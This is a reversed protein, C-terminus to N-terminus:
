RCTEAPQAHATSVFCWDEEGEDLRRENGSVEQASSNSSPSSDACASPPTKLPAGEKRQLGKDDDPYPSVLPSGIRGLYSTNGAAEEGSRDAASPTFGAHRDAARRRMLHFLGRLFKGPLISCFLGAVFHLLGGGELRQAGGPVSVAGTQSSCKKHLGTGAAKSPVDKEANNSATPSSGPAEGEQESDSDSGSSISSTCLEEMPEEIPQRATRLISAIDFVNVPPHMRAARARSARHAMYALATELVLLCGFILAASFCLYLLVRPSLAWAQLVFDIPRRVVRAWHPSREFIYLGVLSETFDKGACFCHAATYAVVMLAASMFFAVCGACLSAARGGSNMFSRWEELFGGYSYENDEQTQELYEPQRCTGRLSHETHKRESRPRIGLRKKIEAINPVEESAPSVGSSEFASNEGM